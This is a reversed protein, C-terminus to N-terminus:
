ASETPLDFEGARVGAVFAHWERQTFIHPPKSVDKSDRVGIMGDNLMRVEVCGTDMSYSSKKYGHISIM